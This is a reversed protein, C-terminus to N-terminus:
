ADFLWGTEVDIFRCQIALELCRHFQRANHTGVNIRGLNVDQADLRTLVCYMVQDHSHAPFDAGGKFELCSKLGV